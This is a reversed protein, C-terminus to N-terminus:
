HAAPMQALLRGLGALPTRIQMVELLAWLGAQNTTIVPKGFQAEWKDIFSMTPFNGGPVVLAEVKASDVRKFAATAHQPGIAGIAYADEAAFGEMAVVSLDYHTQYYDKALAIVADSYPSVLAIRQVGLARLAAGIAQASTIAPAGAAASIREKLQNDYNAEFLSASTQALSVVEVNATGLLKAQYDIDGKLSPAFPSAGDKGLRGVHVQLSEPLLRNYEIEVTTNTSPILVGFHRIM